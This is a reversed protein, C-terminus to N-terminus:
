QMIPSYEMKSATRLEAVKDAQVENDTRYEVSDAQVDNDTHYDIRSCKRVTETHLVKEVVSEASVCLAVTEVVM